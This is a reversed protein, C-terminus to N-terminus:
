HFMPQYPHIKTTRDTFRREIIVQKAADYSYKMFEASQIRGPNYKTPDAFPVVDQPDFEGLKMRATLLRGAAQDIYSFVLM